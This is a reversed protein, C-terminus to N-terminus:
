LLYEFTKMLVCFQLEILGRNRQRFKTEAIYQRGEEAEVTRIYKKVQSDKELLEQLRQGELKLVTTRESGLKHEFSIFDQQWNVKVYHRWPEKAGALINKDYDYSQIIVGKGAIEAGEKVYIIDGPKMEYAVKRLSGRPAGARPRKQRWINDYEKETIKRCDEVVPLSKYYYGIAAIGREFCDPWQSPGQSGVRM